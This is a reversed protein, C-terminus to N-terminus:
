QSALIAVILGTAVAALVLKDDVQRWEYGRAPQRLHRSRYDVRHGRNWDSRDIRGGTRWHQRHEGYRGTRQDYRGNDRDYRGYDRDNRGSRQDYRGDNQEYRGANQDYRGNYPQASAAGVSAGALALGAIATTLFRKM